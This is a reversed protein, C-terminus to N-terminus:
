KGGELSMEILVDGTQQWIVESVFEFGYKEYFARGIKNEKFVKVTLDGYRQRAKDVLASGLRKQHFNPEVFLGGIECLADGNNENTILAIFGVLENDVFLVWTETNPIYLNAINEREQQFFQENMFPHALRSSCEWTALLKQLDKEQYSRIEIKM